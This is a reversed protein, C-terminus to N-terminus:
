CQCMGEWQGEYKIQIRRMRGIYGKETGPDVRPYWLWDDYRM